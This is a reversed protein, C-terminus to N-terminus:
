LNTNGYEIINNDFTSRFLISVKIVWNCIDGNSYAGGENYNRSELCYEGEYYLDIVASSTPYCGVTNTIHISVM